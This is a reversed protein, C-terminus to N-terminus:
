LDIKSLFVNSGDDVSQDVVASNILHTDILQQRNINLGSNEMFELEDMTVVCTSPSPPASSKSSWKRGATCLMGGM